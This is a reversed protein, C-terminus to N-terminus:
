FYKCPLKTYENATIETIIRNFTNGNAVSNNTNIIQQSNTFHSQLNHSFADHSKCLQKAIIDPKKGGGFSAPSNMAYDIYEM